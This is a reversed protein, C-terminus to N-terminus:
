RNRIIFFSIERENSENRTVVLFIVDNLPIGSCGKVDCVRVVGSKLSSKKSSYSGASKFCCAYRFIRSRKLLVAIPTM